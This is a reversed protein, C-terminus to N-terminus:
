PIRERAETKGDGTVSKERVDGGGGRGGGRFSVGGDSIEAVFDALRARLRASAVRQVVRKEIQEFRLRIPTM